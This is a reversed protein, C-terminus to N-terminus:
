MLVIRLVWAITVCGFLLTLMRYRPRLMARMEWAGHIRVLWIATPTLTLAVSSALLYGPWGREVLAAAATVFGLALGHLVVSAPQAWRPIDRDRSPEFAAWGLLLAILLSAFAFDAPRTARQPDSCKVDVLGYLKRYLRILHAQDDSRVLFTRTEVVTRGADERSLVERLYVPAPGGDRAVIRSAAALARREALSAQGETDGRSVANVAM